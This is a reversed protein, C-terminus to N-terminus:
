QSWPPVVGNSRAYAIQQGLHEHLHTASLTLWLGLIVLPLGAAFGATLRDGLLAFSAAAGVFPALAFGMGTRVTGVLRLSFIFLVL